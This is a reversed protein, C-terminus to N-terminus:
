IYFSKIHVWICGILGIKGIAMYFLDASLPKSDRTYWKNGIIKVTKAIKRTSHFVSQKEEWFLLKNRRGREPMARNALVSYPSCPDISACTSQSQVYNRFGLFCM